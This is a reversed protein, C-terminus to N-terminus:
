VGEQWAVTEVRFAAEDAPRDAKSLHLWGPRVFLALMIQLVLLAALVIDIILLAPSDKKRQIVQRPAGYQPAYAYSGPAPQAPAFTKGPIAALPAGCGECFTADGKAPTGCKTCFRTMM